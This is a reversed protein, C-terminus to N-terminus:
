FAVGYSTEAYLSKSGPSYTSLLLSLRKSFDDRSVKTLDVYLDGAKAEGQKYPKLFPYGSSDELFRETASSYLGPAVAFPFREVFQSMMLTHELGTYDPSRTDSLSKRIRKAACSNGSCQVMVEAHTQTLACRTVSLNFKSFAEDEPKYPYLSAFLLHRPERSSSNGNALLSQNTNGLFADFRQLYIADDTTQGFPRYVPLDTDIFFSTQYSSGPHDAAGKGFPNNAKESKNTWIQGPVLAEILPWNEEQNGESNFIREIYTTNFTSCDVSIYTSELTFSSHEHVPLGVIPIGVLSSYGEASKMDEPVDHWGPASINDQRPVKINGWPDQPSLKNAMPAMLATQFLAAADAFGGFEAYTTSLGYVVSGPGSSMYRLKTSSEHLKDGRSMLRLSAQGGLPSLTWLFLLNAGVLTLRQMLFQSEITGWVSQSAM